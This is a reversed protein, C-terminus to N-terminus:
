NNFSFTQFHNIFITISEKIYTLNNNILYEYFVIQVAFLFLIIMTPFTTELNKRQNLFVYSFDILFLIALLAIGASFLTFPIATYQQAIWSGIIIIWSALYWIVRKYKKLFILHGGIWWLVSFLVYLIIWKKNAANNFSAFEKKLWKSYVTLQEM